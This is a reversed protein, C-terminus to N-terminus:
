GRKSLCAIYFGDYEGEDPFFQREFSLSFMPYAKRFWATNEENEMRDMTCTSFVLRGGPKVYQAAASLIERQLLALSKEMEQTMRFRIDPKRRMTGLGSCPLDAIVLDAKEVSDEDLIRADQRRARINQAGCRRINEEILGIKRETLDRAEVMGGGKMCDAAHLSKGGPAGCVDIVYEGPKPNAVHVALMSCVDQVMFLGESFGNLASLYDYGSLYLAYDFDPFEELAVPEAEAGQEKFLAALEKPTTKMRNVRVCTRSQISLSKAISAAKEMGYDRGWQRIMWEPLSYRVSLAGIPHAKEDPYAIRDLNRSINRLVGNVFGKLRSFGKKAALRVSENCAASAPVSDMYKLQYAGMLLICHIEPRMKETKLTSFQNIIYDLEISKEMTGECLRTLFSREQKSLYQYKELMASLATHGYEGDKFVALLAFLALERVNIGDTTM